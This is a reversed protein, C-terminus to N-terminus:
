TRRIGPRCRRFRAPGHGERDSTAVCWRSPPWCGCGGRRAPAAAPPQEAGARAPPRPRHSRPAAGAPRDARRGRADPTSSQTRSAWCPRRGATPRALGLVCRVTTTKGSGNPALLGTVRGPGIRVRLDDVATRARYRKTLGEIEIVSM